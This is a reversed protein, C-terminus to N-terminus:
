GPRSPVTAQSEVFWRASHAISDGYPTWRIGLANEALGTEMRIQQGLFRLLAPPLPDPLRLGALGLRKATMALVKLPPGALYADMKLRSASLRRVPVLGLARSLDSFYQNWRPSDPAALNYASLLGPAAASPRLSRAIATCVDDVHVLNSWGDGQIGLDGCRGSALWRGIRGVWLQSGPGHVCGPRLVVATGGHETYRRIEQEAAVKAKAYWGLDPDFPSEETVLGEQRGYVSMTSLHVVHPRGAALAANVLAKAGEAISTPDGAVCNVVADCNRLVAALKAEDRSDICIPEAGVWPRASPRRAAALFQLGANAASFAILRSGIHGTAGLVLVRM